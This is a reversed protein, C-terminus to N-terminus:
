LMVEIRKKGLGKAKMLALTANCCSQGIGASFSFSDFSINNIKLDIRTESLALISDGGCFVIKAGNNELFVKIEDLCLYVNESLFKISDLDNSLAYKELEKGIDDGDIAYYYLGM